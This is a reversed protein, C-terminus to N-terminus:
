YCEELDKSRTLIDLLDWFKRQEEPSIKYKDLNEKIKFEIGMIRKKLIKNVTELKTAETVISKISNESINAFTIHIFNNKMNKELAYIEDWKNLIQCRKEEIKQTLTLLQEKTMESESTESKTRTKKIEEELELEKQLEENKDLAEKALKVLRKVENRAEEIDPTMTRKEMGKVQALLAKKHISSQSDLLIAMYLEYENKVEKLLDGYVFSSNCIDDFVNGFVQLRNSQTYDNENMIQLEKELKKEHSIAVKRGTFDSEMLDQKAVVEKEIKLFKLFKDKKTVSSLCSHIFQYEDRSSFSSLCQRSNKAPKYKLLRLEPLRLDKKFTEDQLKKKDEKLKEEIAIDSIPLTPFLSSKSETVVAKLFGPHDSAAPILATNFTFESLADEMNALKEDYQDKQVTRKRIPGLSGSWFCTPKNPNFLKNPNLHGSTYLKVDDRHIRQLENLLESLRWGHNPDLRTSNKM